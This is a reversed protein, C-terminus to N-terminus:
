NRMGSPEPSDSFANLHPLLTLFLPHAESHRATSATQLLAGFMLAWTAATQVARQVFGTGAGCALVLVHECRHHRGGPAAATIFLPEAFLFCASVDTIVNERWACRTRGPGKDVWSSLFLLCECVCLCVSADTIVDELCMPNLDVMIPPPDIGAALNCVHSYNVSCVECLSQLLRSPLYPARTPPPVSHPSAHRSYNVSCGLVALAPLCPSYTLYAHSASSPTCPLASPKCRAPRSPVRGPQGRGAASCECHPVGHRGGLRMHLMCPLRQM